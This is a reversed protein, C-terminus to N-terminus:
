APIIDYNAPDEFLKKLVENNLTHGGKYSEVGGIIQGGSTYM